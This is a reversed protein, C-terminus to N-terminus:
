PNGKSHMQSLVSCPSDILAEIELKTKEYQRKLQSALERLYQRSQWSTLLQHDWAQPPHNCAHRYQELAQYIRELIQSSLPSLSCRTRHYSLATQFLCLGRREMLQLAQQEQLPEEFRMRSCNKLQIQIDLDWAEQQFALPANELKSQAAQLSWVAKQDQHLALMAQTKLLLLEIPIEKTKKELEEILLSAKLNEHIHLQVRILLLSVELANESFPAADLFEKLLPLAQAEQKTALLSKSLYLLSPLFYPGPPNPHTFKQFYSIAEPYKKQEFAQIAQEWLSALDEQSRRPISQCAEFLLFIGLLHWM